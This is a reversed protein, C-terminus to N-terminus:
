WAGLEGVIEEILDKLTVIGVVRGDADEVFGMPQQSRGLRQLVARPIM